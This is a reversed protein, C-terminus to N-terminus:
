LSQLVHEPVAVWAAEVFHWLEDATTVPAHRRALRKEVMLWVNETKSLEPFSASCPLLRVNETDLLTWIIGASHLRANNQQFTDNQM